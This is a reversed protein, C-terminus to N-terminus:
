RTEEHRRRAHEDRRDAWWVVIKQGFVADFAVGALIASGYFWFGTM